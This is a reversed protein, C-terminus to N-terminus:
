DGQAKLSKKVIIDDIADVPIFARLSLREIIESAWLEPRAEKLCAIKAAIRAAAFEAGRFRGELWGNALFFGSETYEEVKFIEPDCYFLRSQIEPHTLVGVVGPLESPYSTEEAIPHSAVIILDRHEAQKCLSQFRQLKEPNNTNVCVCIVDAYQELAIQIGAALIDSNTKAQENFINIGILAVDPAEELVLGALQTGRGILDRQRRKSVIKGGSLFVDWSDALNPVSSNIGTDVIAVRVGKGTVTKGAFIM